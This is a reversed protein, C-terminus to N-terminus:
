LVLSEYSQGCWTVQDTISERNDKVRDILNEHASERKADAVNELDGTAVADFAVTTTEPNPATCTNVDVPTSGELVV